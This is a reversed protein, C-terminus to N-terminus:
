ENSLWGLIPRIYWPMRTESHSNWYFCRCQSHVSQTAGTELRNHIASMYTVTKVKIHM